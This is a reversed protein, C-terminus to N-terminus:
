LEWYVVENGSGSAAIAYVSGNTPLTVGEGEELYGATTDCDTGVNIHVNVSSRSVIIIGKERSGSKTGIESASVSGLSVKGTAWGSTSGAVGAVERIRVAENDPDYTLKTITSKSHAEVM